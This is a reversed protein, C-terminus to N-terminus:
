VNGALADLMLCTYAMDNQFQELGFSENPAHISDEERSFGVLLPSAGSVDRLAGIVPISAGMWQFVPGHPDIQTLVEAAMRMLPTQVPLRLAPAGGTIESFELILGPPCHARLHEMIQESSERPSQDPCLRASLKAVAVSPLVTKSGPGGYGSHIGNVDITPRFSKREVVPVGAEGGAPAVGIEREYREADFPEVHAFKLEEPSPPVVRELFGSVVIRGHEDHLSALLRAMGAAANPAVGGHTGSHLDRPAGRLTVTLHVIGRLGVIIAARGSEHVGVDGVMMVDAQLNQRWATLNALLGGSGSEEEGDFVLRITPLEVGADFLAAVGQLFAFLQGKNDSAGRAYVRGDRLEPAFPDSKWLELPDAPQVDYHGYFLVVPAGVKGPREALLVPQGNTLRIDAEFGLPRLYRKLWAACQACERLRQRDTGISPIRLLEFWDALIAERHQAFYSRALDIKVM